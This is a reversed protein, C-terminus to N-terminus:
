HVKVVAHRHELSTSFQGVAVHADAAPGGDHFTQELQLPQYPIPPFVRLRERRRDTSAVFEMRPGVATWGCRAAGEEGPHPIRGEIQSVLGGLTSAEYADGPEAPAGFLAGLQYIGFDGPVLWAGNADREPKQDHSESNRGLDMEVTLHKGSLAFIRAEGWGHVFAAHTNRTFARLANALRVQQKM